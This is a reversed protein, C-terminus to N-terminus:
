STLGLASKLFQMELPLVNKIVAQDAIMHNLGPLPLVTHPRGASTLAASLRLSHAAFVNDDALGHILMLPRRLRPALSTLQSEEYPGPSDDPHGLYRETYHTDYLRWDTVPAGAIAAHFIDGRKLVALAALYGGFSWGRIAVRGLDVPFHEALAHLADVQDTLPVEGFGRAIEKEWAPSRGPTGRGDAVIVVFGQDAFWQSTLHAHHTAVAKQVLPGGYPDMLVPLPPGGVEYGSPMFVACPIRREGAETLTPRASICPEQAVSSIRTGTGHLWASRGPPDLTSSTLLTVDGSRLGAHVGPMASHQTTVGADDVSYVHVEGISTRPSASFLLPGPGASLVARVHLESATVREGAVTLHRSDADDSIMVLRGKSDWSPVGPFIDCWTDSTREHLVLTTGDAPDIQLVCERRQDRSQVLMLPPGWVSWYVAALYPLQARDWVVPTRGGGLDLVALTVSANPTGAVPYSVARPREAPAGPDAVWWQRIPATDVHTALLRDSRPSWWFGRLRGMEERAIFEALGWTTTDGEPKALTRDDTGDAAVVRLAGNSVYALHSGDPSLRPDAVPAATSVRRPVAQPGLLDVLRVQGQFLFAARTVEEDVSYGGIGPATGHRGEAMTRPDAVLREVGPDMDYVWLGTTASTGSMSRLFVLRKQDPSLSFSHPAGLTFGQTTHLQEPFDKASRM